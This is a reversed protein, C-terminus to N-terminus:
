PKFNISVPRIENSKARHQSREARREQMEVFKRRLKTVPEFRFNEERPAKHRLLVPSFSTCSTQVTLDECIFM